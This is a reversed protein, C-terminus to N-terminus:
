KKEKEWKRRAEEEEEEEEEEQEQECVRPGTITCVHGQSPACTSMHSPTCTIEHCRSAPFSFTLSSVVRALTVTENVGGVETSKKMKFNRVSLRAGGGKETEEGGVVM